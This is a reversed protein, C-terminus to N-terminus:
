RYSISQHAFFFDYRWSPLTRISGASALLQFMRWCVLQFMRLMLAYGECVCSPAHHFKTINIPTRIIKHTMLEFSSMSMVRFTRWRNHNITSRKNHTFDICIVPTIHLFRLQNEYRACVLHFETINIPTRVIKHTLEFSSVPM